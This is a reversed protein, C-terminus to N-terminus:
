RAEDLEALLGMLLKAGTGSAIADYVNEVNKGEQGGALDSVSRIVVWDVDNVFCVQGVAASEMETVDAAFVRRTWERYSGNDLFVSGTVGNGGVFVRVATGSPMAITGVREVARRAAELLRPTAAFYPVDRPKEWGDRVVSVEDPHIFGFNEYRPAHPDPRALHRALTAAYYDPNVYISEDHYYWREPVAIDGPRLEPNVAGAIGMMVVERIPFYDLAMQLTMAANAVSIGTTFVVVPAERFTGLRYTVGRFRLTAGLEGDPSAAFAEEIARIEPAYAAVIATLRPADGFSRPGYEAVSGVGPVVLGALFVVSVFFRMGGSLLRWEMWRAWLGGGRLQRRFAATGLGGRAVVVGSACLVWHSSNRFKTNCCLRMIM